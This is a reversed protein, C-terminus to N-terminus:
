SINMETTKEVRWIWGHSDVISGGNYLPVGIKFKWWKISFGGTEFSESNGNRYQSFGSRAIQRNSSVLSCTVDGLPTKFIKAILKHKKM